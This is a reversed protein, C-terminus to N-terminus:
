MSQYENISRFINVAQETTINLFNGSDFKKDSWELSDFPALKMSWSSFLRNNIKEDNLKKVNRHRNDANIKSYLKDVSLTPGELLQLYSNSGTLLCGTVNEEPNNKESSNIVKQLCSESLDTKESVYIVRKLETKM